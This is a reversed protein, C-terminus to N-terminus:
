ALTGVQKEHRSAMIGASPLLPACMVTQDARCHTCPACGDVYKLRYSTAGGVGAKRERGACSTAQGGFWSVDSRRAARGEGGLAERLGRVLIYAMDIVHATSM